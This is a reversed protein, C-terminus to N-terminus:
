AIRIDGSCAKKDRLLTEYLRVIAGANRKADYRCYVHERLRSARQSAAVSDGFVVTLGRLTEEVSRPAVVVGRGENLLEPIGGAATAVVPLGAAGAEVLVTPMGESYSPLLFVDAASMYVAIRENPEVGVMRCRGNVAMETRLPGDGVLVGFVKEDPYRDVASVFERIGKQIVLNGVYLVIRADTPLGLLKRAERKAPGREFRSLDIGIPIVEPRRGLRAAREALAQSVAIVADTQRLVKQVCQRSRRSEEPLTNIDSGHLTLVSPVNLARAVRLGVLGYPYAYHSHVVDPKEVLARRVALEM